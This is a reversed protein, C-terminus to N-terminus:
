FIHEQCIVKCVEWILHVLDWLKFTERRIKCNDKGMGNFGPTKLRSHLHLQVTGVHSAGVVDSHDVIDNGVLTCTINSTKHYKKCFLEALLPNLTNKTSVKVINFWCVLLMYTMDIWTLVEWKDAVMQWVACINLVSHHYIITGM